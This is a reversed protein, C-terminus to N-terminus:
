LQEGQVCACVDIPHICSQFCAFVLTLGDGGGPVFCAAVCEVIIVFIMLIIAFWSADIISITLGLLSRCLRKAGGFLDTIQYDQSVVANFGGVRVIHLRFAQWRQHEHVPRIHRGAGNGQAVAVRRV